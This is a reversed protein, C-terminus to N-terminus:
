QAWFVSSAIDVSYGYHSTCYMYYNLHLKKDTSAEM